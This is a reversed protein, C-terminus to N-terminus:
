HTSPTINGPHRQHFVCIGPEFPETALAPSRPEAPNLHRGLVVVAVRAAGARKLSVSASQASAGSVWTDDLLLVDAGDAPRSVFRDANLDRGQEGHRIALPVLPLGLYPAAMRALPHPGPRGCGSPVIALRRPEAMGAQRWICPGHDGLFVLLLALLSQAAHRDGSKYRGLAIAFATGRVAYAIPAVADALLGEGLLQHQACQYCRSYGPRLPGRCVVCSASTGCPQYLGPLRGARDRLVARDASLAM